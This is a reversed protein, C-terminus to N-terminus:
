GVLRGDRDDELYTQLATELATDEGGGGECEVIRKRATYPGCRAFDIDKTSFDILKM